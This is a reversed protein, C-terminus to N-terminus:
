KVKKKHKPKVITCHRRDGPQKPKSCTVEIAPHGKKGHREGTTTDQCGTAVVAVAAAILLTKKLM